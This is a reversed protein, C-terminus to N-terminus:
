TNINPIERTPGLWSILGDSIALSGDKIVGYPVGNSTMTAIHADTILLDWESM